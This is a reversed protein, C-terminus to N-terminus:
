IIEVRPIPVIFKGGWDRIFSLQNIIEEKINWPLIFIYDPQSAKIREPEYIPIHSGPLFRGQKLPNQDVTYDLFDQRIGCYNLLTNGKAPAGYGAITKHQQKLNILVSLIERKLFKVREQFQYFTELQNYGSKKEEQELNEVAPEIKGAWVRTRGAYIRLSGGHTPIKEVDFICLGNAEFIRRAVFFLFYSLHEHYITDFQNGEMLCVLHPFEVTVVGQPKLLIELGRVFDNLAPVHALVNNAVVLDASFGKEVLSQAVSSSFFAIETPIGNGLAIAAINRAPEIGLVNIGSSQFLQLLCGDNSAIEIVLSKRRLGLQSCIKRVYDRCHQLWTQSYSSCYPYQSFTEEPTVYQALQVLFCSPCLFIDLPYFIEKERLQSATLYNNALPQAGLSLFPAVVERGCFRCVMTEGNGNKQEENLNEL